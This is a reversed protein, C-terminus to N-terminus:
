YAIDSGHEDFIYGGKELGRWYELDRARTVEILFKM